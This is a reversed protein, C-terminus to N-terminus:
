RLDQNYRRSFPPTVGGKELCQLSSHQLKPKKVPNINRSDGKILILALNYVGQLDRGHWDQQQTSYSASATHVLTTGEVQESLYDKYIISDQILARSSLTGRSM